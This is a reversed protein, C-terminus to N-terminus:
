HCDEQFHYINFTVLKNNRKSSVPQLPSNKFLLFQISYGCVCIYM